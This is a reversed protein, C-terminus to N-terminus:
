PPGAAAPLLPDGPGGTGGHQFLAGSLYRVPGATGRATGVSRPHPPGRVMAVQPAPRRPRRREMRATAPSSVRAGVSSPWRRRQGALVGASWPPPPRHRCGREWPGHGGAASAPSSAPAGHPPRRHRCRREWPGHGGAASAPSSAPAGHPAPRHRCRREWPGHSGAATAPPSAPAGHPRHGALVGASERVMAVQPAPRRPRRREMPRDGTVVGASERVM